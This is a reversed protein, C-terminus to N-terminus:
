TGQENLWRRLCASSAFPYDAGDSRFQLFIKVLCPRSVGDITRHEIDFSADSFSVHDWSFGLITQASDGAQQYTMTGNSKDVSYTITAPYMPDDAPYYLTLTTLSSTDSFDADEAARIERGLREMIARAAQNVDAIKNVRDYTWLSSSVAAAIAVGLISMIMLAALLEVLTFAKTKRRM